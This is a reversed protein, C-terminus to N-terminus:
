RDSNVRGLLFVDTFRTGDWRDDLLTGELVFGAKEFARRARPNLALVYAYVRHLGIVDFAYRAMLDLAKSGAGAGLASREGIMVRVEGKRHRRDVDALWVNGIHRGNPEQHIARFITDARNALGEFWRQHEDADITRPRDLLRALEPDNNWALTADLHKREFPVLTVQLGDSM